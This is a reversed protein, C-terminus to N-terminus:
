FSGCGDGEEVDFPVTAKFRRNWSESDMRLAKLVSELNRIRQGPPNLPDASELPSGDAFDSDSDSSAHDIADHLM